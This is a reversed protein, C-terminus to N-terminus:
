RLFREQMLDVIVADRIKRKTYPTLESWIKNAVDIQRVPQRSHLVGDLFPM